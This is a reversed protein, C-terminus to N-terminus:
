PEGRCVVEINYGDPDTVFAAYYGPPYPPPREGPGGNDIGGAALAAAHFADVLGRETVRFALHTPTVHEVENLWLEPIERDGLCCSRGVRPNPTESSALEAVLVYGLPKLAATYFDKARAYDSVLLSLHDIM